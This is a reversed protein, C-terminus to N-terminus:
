AVMLDDLVTDDTRINLNQIREDDEPATEVEDFPTTGDVPFNAALFEALADQETGFGTFDANGDLETEPTMTPDIDTLDIRDVRTPDNQEFAAFPYGDGGDALFNLTVIRIESPAGAVAVGDDFLAQTANGNEDILAVDQIRTGATTVSGNEDLVQATGDPDFSFSLGGVQAFQGPTAGPATAAVGHELVIKLEDLTLTLLTLGNNFRLANEIDLQSIEGEEKGSAPNEQTPLLEGTLGDIEGIPARIGGGNKISVMVTDDVSQAVALNADATLNGLTTEETRVFERRGEIFVDTEGFVNGDVVSVVGTVADTLDQVQDGKTGEAFAEALGGDYLSEVTQDTTAFAGSVDEDISEVIVNGNVDFEVVLRGVYSYEGDTSLVLTDNGDLDETVFPYPQDATDGERLTDQADASLTDSGGALIVDVGRLLTALEAELEFQQLHSVLVIKNVGLALIDDITPQLIAALAAMDNAEPGIVTTGSPSSLDQLLQTTAGVVGIFEGGEEILTAPAIKPVSTEGEQSEEVGTQFETNLLIEDTFLNGLDSDGSFDLNASLYPFQAGVWRDADPGAPDRFDEEIINEFADSGNDFEHNGVASADFGIINMISIDVRGEGERLANFADTGFLENYTDNFVGGERFTDRDGAANFFPGPIYNDGSSLIITNEVEDELVDVIAAFNPANDIADVGGELDSAHLIQLKFTTAVEIDDFRFQEINRYTDVEGTRTDTVTRAETDIIFDSRLGDFVATDNGNGGNLRDNGAGGILVDDGNRGRLVDDGSLGNLVNANRDGEIEDDYNSGTANEISVLRDFQFNRGGGFSALFAPGDNDPLSFAVGDRLDISIGTRSDAYSATDNGRGGNLFDNGRGGILTDDGRGGFLFDNGRGGDIEDDGSLGFIIDTRRGGSIEDDGFSGFKISPGFGFGFHWGHGYFGPAYGVDDDDGFDFFKPQHHFFRTM